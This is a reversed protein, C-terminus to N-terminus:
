ADGSGERSRLNERVKGCVSVTADNLSLCSIGARAIEQRLALYVQRNRQTFIEELTPPPPEPSTVPAPLKVPVSAVPKAAAKKELPALVERVSVLAKGELKVMLGELILAHLLSFVLPRAVTLELDLGWTLQALIVATGAPEGAPYIRVKFVNDEYIVTLHDIGM